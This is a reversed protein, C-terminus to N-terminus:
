VRGLMCRIPLMGVFCFCGLGFGSSCINPADAWLRSAGKVMTVADVGPPKVLALGTCPAAATGVKLFHTM